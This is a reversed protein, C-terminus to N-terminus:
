PGNSLDELREIKKANVELLEEIKYQARAENSFMHLVVDICDVLVWGGDAPGIITIDYYGKKKLTELIKTSIGSIQRVSDASTVIVFKAFYGQSMEFVVTNELKSTMIEYVLDQKLM